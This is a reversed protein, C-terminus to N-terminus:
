GTGSVDWIKPDMTKTKGTPDMIKVVYKIMYDEGSSNKNMNPISVSTKGDEYGSVSWDPMTDPISNGDKDTFNISVMRYSHNSKDTFSFTVNDAWEGNKDYAMRPASSHSWNDGGKFKIEITASKVPSADSKKREPEM